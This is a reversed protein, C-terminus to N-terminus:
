YKRIEYKLNLRYIPPGVFSSRFPFVALKWDFYDYINNENTLLKFTKGTKIYEWSNIALIGYYIQKNNKRTLRFLTRKRSNDFKILKTSYLLVDM